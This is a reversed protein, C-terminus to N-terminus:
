ASVSLGGSTTPTTSSGSSSTPSNLLNLVIQENSNPNLNFTVQQATSGQNGVSLSIQEGGGSTSNINISIQEPNSSGGTNSLNLVIEPGANSTSAATSAAAPTSIPPDIQKSATNFTSGLANFATQAGALDGAQLATGIATFDQQRGAIKFANGGSIGSGQGLAVLSNYASQAGALDGAALSQGLQKLETHRTQFYQQLNQNQNILNSSVAATSM